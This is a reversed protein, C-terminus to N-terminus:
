VRGAAKGFALAFEGGARNLSERKQGRRTGSNEESDFIASGAEKEGRLCSGKGEARRRGSPVSLSVDGAERVRPWPGRCKAQM